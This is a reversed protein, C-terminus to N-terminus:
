ETERIVLMDDRAVLGKASPRPSRGAHFRAIYHAMLNSRRGQGEPAPSRAIVTYENIENIDMLVSAM